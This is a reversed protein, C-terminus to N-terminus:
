CVTHVLVCVSICVSVTNKLHPNGYIIVFTKDRGCVANNLDIFDELNQHRSILQQM